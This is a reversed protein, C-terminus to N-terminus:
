AVLSIWLVVGHGREGHEDEGIVGVKNVEEGGGDERGCGDKLSLKMGMGDGDYISLQDSACGKGHRTGMFVRVWWGYGVASARSAHSGPLNVKRQLM